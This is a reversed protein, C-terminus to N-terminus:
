RVALPTLASQGRGGEVLVTKQQTNTDIVVLNNRVDNTDARVQESTAALSGDPSIALNQFIGRVILKSEGALSFMSLANVDSALVYYIRQSDASWAAGNIRDSRNGGAILDPADGPSLLNYMYLAEGGNGDRTVFMLRQRDPSTQFRRASSPPFQDITVSNIVRTMTGDAVAVRVLNVV